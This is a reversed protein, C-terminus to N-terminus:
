AEPYHISISVERVLKGQRRSKTKNAMEPFFFIWASLIVELAKLAIQLLAATNM